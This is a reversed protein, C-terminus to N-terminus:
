SPIPVKLAVSPSRIRLGQLSLCFLLFTIGRVRGPVFSDKLTHVILKSTLGIPRLGSDQQVRVELLKRCSPRPRAATDGSGLPSVAETIYSVMVAGSAPLILFSDDLGVKSGSGSVEVLEGLLLSTYSTDSAGPGNTTISFNRVKSIVVKGVSPIGLIVCGDVPDDVSAVTTPHEGSVNEKKDSPPREDREKSSTTSIPAVFVQALRLVPILDDLVESAEVALVPVSPQRSTM